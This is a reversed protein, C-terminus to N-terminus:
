ATGTAAEGESAKRVLAGIALLLAMEAVIPEIHARYDLPQAIGPLAFFDKTHPLLLFGDGGKLALRAPEGPWAEALWELAQALRGTVLPLAAEPNDTRFAYRADLGANGSAIEKLGGGGFIGRFFGTVAGQKRAAVLMGPFPAIMEFALVVGKFVQTSSRGARNRLECEFLEFGFDQHRGSVVDDFSQRNFTGTAESPLRSFSAPQRVHSYRLDDIFGFIIPVVEERFADQLARAPKVAQRYVLPAGLAAFAYLFIHVSSLWQESVNALGNLLFALVLVAALYAGLFLPVRLTIKAAANRREQEYAAIDGVIRAVTEEDPMFGRTDIM